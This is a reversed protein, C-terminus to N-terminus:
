GTGGDGGGRRRGGRMGAGDRPFLRKAMFTVAIDAPSRHWRAFCLAFFVASVIYPSHVKLGFMAIVFSELAATIFLFTSCALSQSIRQSIPWFEISRHGRVFGVYDTILLLDLILAGSICKGARWILNLCETSTLTM